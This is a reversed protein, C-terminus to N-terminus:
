VLAVPDLERLFLMMTTRNPIYLIELIIDMNKKIYYWKKIFGKDDTRKTPAARLCGNQMAEVRNSARSLVTEYAIKNKELAM